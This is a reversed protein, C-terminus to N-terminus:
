RAWEEVWPEWLRGDDRDYVFAYGPPLRPLVDLVRAPLDRLQEAVTELDLSDVLRFM